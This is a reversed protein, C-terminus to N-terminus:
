VSSANEKTLKKWKSRDITSRFHKYGADALAGEKRKRSARPLEGYILAAINSNPISERDITLQGKADWGIKDPLNDILRQVTKKEKNSGSNVLIDEISFPSKEEVELSHPTLEQELPPAPPVPPPTVTKESEQNKYNLYKQLVQAYLLSKEYSESSNDLISRLERELNIMKEVHPNETAKPKEYQDVPVLYMKRM